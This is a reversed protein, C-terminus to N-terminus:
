KNVSQLLKKNQINFIRNSYKLASNNHAVIIITLDEFNENLIKLINEENDKDLSNTAEDLILIQPNKYLARAIGLRQRQGGSLKAGFEGIKTDIGFSLTNIFDGQLNLLKLIKIIKKKDIEDQSFGYAINEGISNDSFFSLNHFM